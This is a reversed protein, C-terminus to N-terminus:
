HLLWNEILWQREAELAQSRHRFPGQRPGGAASLDTWWKGARDPEVSSARHISPRGLLALDIEEGYITRITGAPDIRLIM